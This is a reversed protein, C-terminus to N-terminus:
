PCKAKERFEVVVENAEKAKKECESKTPGAGAEIGWWCANATRCCNAVGPTQCKKAEEGSSAMAPTAATASVIMSGAAAAAGYRAVRVIAERRSEGPIASQMLAPEADLLDKERLEHLASAVLEESAGALVAIEALDHEGDCHRWVCAAIPSLCHATHNERDYLLLEEGVEEELLGDERARPLSGYAHM